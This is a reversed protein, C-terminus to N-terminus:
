LIVHRKIRQRLRRFKPTEPPYSANWCNSLWLSDSLSPGSETIRRERRLAEVLPTVDIAIDDCQSFFAEFKKGLKQREHMWVAAYTEQLQWCRQRDEEVSPSEDDTGETPREALGLKMRLQKKLSEASIWLLGEKRSSRSDTGAQDGTADAGGYGRKSPRWFELFTQWISKTIM